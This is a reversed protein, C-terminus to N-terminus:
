STTRFHLYLVLFGFMMKQFKNFNLLSIISLLGMRTIQLTQTKSPSVKKSKILSRLTLSLCNISIQHPTPCIVLFISYLQFFNHLAIITKLIFNHMGYLNYERLDVARILRGQNKFALILIKQKSRTYTSGSKPSFLHLSHIDECILAKSRCVPNACTM